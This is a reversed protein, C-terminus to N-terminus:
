GERTLLRRADAVLAGLMMAEIAFEAYESAMFEIKTLLAAEHPAPTIILSDITRAHAERADELSASGSEKAEEVTAQTSRCVGLAANWARAHDPLNLAQPNAPRVDGAVSTM